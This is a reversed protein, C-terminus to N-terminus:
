PPSAAPLRRLGPLQPRSGQSRALGRQSRGRGYDRAVEGQSKHETQQEADAGGQQAMQEVDLDPAVEIDLGDGVARYHAYDGKVGPAGACGTVM